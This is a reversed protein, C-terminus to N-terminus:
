IHDQYLPLLTSITIISPPKYITTSSLSLFHLLWFHFHVIDAYNLDSPEGMSLYKGYELEGFLDELDASEVRLVQQMRQFTSPWADQTLQVTSLNMNMTYAM